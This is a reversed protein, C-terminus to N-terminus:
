NHENVGAWLLFFLLIALSQYGTAGKPSVKRHRNTGSPTLGGAWGLNLTLLAIRSFLSFLHYTTLRNVDSQKPHGTEM